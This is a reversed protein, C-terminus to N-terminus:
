NGANETQINQIEPTEEVIKYVDSSINNAIKANFNNIENTTSNTYSRTKNECDLVFNNDVFLENHLFPM